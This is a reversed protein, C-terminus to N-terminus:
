DDRTRNKTSREVPKLWTGPPPHRIQIAPHNYKKEHWREHWYFFELLATAAPMGAILRIIFYNM